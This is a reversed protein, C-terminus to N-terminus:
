LMRMYVILINRWDELVLFMYKQLKLKENNSSKKLQIKRGKKRPLYQTDICMCVYFYM